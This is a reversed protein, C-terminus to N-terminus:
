LLFYVNNFINSKKINHHVRSNNRFYYHSPFAHQMNPFQTGRVYCIPALGTPWDIDTCFRRQTVDKGFVLSILSILVMAVGCDPMNDSSRRDLKKVRWRLM